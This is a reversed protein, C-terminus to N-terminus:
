QDRAVWEVLADIAPRTEGANAHNVLAVVVYRKGSDGLVYGARAVVNSLSGTKMHADVNGKVRRLTGDVGSIPLSSMLESMVPSLYASQLLHGLGFASIREQRSLGSGNDLTPMEDAPLRERWWRQVATRSAAFSGMALAATAGSAATQSADANADNAALAPAAASGRGLTLFVMQAMVNNSYKNIDRIVEALPESSSVFAPKGV